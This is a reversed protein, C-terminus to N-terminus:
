PCTARRRGSAALLLAIPMISAPGPVAYLIFASDTDQFGSWEGSAWSYTASWGDALDADQWQWADSESTTEILGASVALFYRRGSELSVPSSLLAEHRYEIAGAPARRGTAAPSTEALGFTETALLAGPLWDGGVQEAVFFEIQISDFNTLDPHTHLSSQGWWVIRTIAAPDALVFDDAHKFNKRVRPESNSFWGLGVRAASSTTPQSFVQIDAAAAPCLAAGAVVAMAPLCKSM